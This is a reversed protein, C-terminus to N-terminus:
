MDIFLALRPLRIRIFTQYFLPFCITSRSPELTRLDYLGKSAKSCIDIHTSWKLDSSAACDLQRGDVTLCDNPIQDNKLFSTSFEKTKIVNIKM